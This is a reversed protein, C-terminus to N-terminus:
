QKTVENNLGDPGHSMVVPVMVVLLYRTQVVVVAKDM